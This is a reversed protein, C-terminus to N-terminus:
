TLKDSLSRRVDILEDRDGDALARKFAARYERRQAYVANDEELRAEIRDTDVAGDDDDVYYNAWLVYPREPDYESDSTDTSSPENAEAAALEAADRDAIASEASPRARENVSARRHATPDTRSHPALSVHSSGIDRTCLARGESQVTFSVSAGEAQAFLATGADSPQGAPTALVRGDASKDTAKKPKRPCDRHWHKGGCHRCASFKPTWEKEFTNPKDHRKPDTRKRDPKGDSTRELTNRKALFAQGPKSGDATCHERTNRALFPM